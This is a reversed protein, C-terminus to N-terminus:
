SKHHRFDAYARLLITSQLPQLFSILVLVRAEYIKLDVGGESTNAGVGAEGVQHAAGPQLNAGQEKCALVAAIFLVGCPHVVGAITAETEADSGAGRAWALMLHAALQRTVGWMGHICGNTHECLM